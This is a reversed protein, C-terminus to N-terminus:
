TGGRWRRLALANTVVSVSSLAMAAGAIVPSLLGFAALPIGVVNYVFAWFLNQRIKRGTARSVEVADAVLGVDPRMLTIGAAEIAAATGSGMAIGLDAAALAPADNVGDGVMAVVGGDRRLRAIAAQKDEPLLQAEVHEIGLATAIAGAARPNDGTLMVTRIGQRRLRAIAAAAGPRPPDAVSMLGLLRHARADAVWMNTRGASEAAEAAAALATLEIGHEEMLRRSGILLDRDGQGTALVVSVGRGPLARFQRVPALVIGDARARSLVARAIPHESGSQAAAALGLLAGTDGSIPVIDAVVPRGQTLTGTKDFVVIALRDAREIARADRILIGARAAAGTGVMLAAPTALGLACPCAIVLVAVANVIAVEGDGALWWWGALSVAAVVLVIPVFIAAVRDVLLQVPAKSAQAREVMAVIRALTADAGLATAAIRVLGEGNIAGGVVADGVARDVPLSEGTIASEDFGSAGSVIRGDVPVREGPRVVVIDDLVLAAVPLEVETGDREVRATEPQLAILARIAAAAGRKARAELYKGLLVLAIVAASAEFYLHADVGHEAMLYLSLGFAASTGLAVLLDMNGTGAKLARWAAAYFRAGLWFQVPAALALQLWHPLSQNWGLLQWIMQAVLPATLALALGAHLLDRRLREAEQRESAAAADGSDLPRAGYGARDIALVLDALATGPAAAVHARETALNVTAHGVGAVAALAREVRGACAACTMGEIKLDFERQAVEYGAREVAQVLDAATVRGADFSVEAQETALNVAADAVGPVSRLAREVRGTCSACTMGVVPLSRRTLTTTAPVLSM